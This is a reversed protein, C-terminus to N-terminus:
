KSSKICIIKGKRFLLILLFTNLVTPQKEFIEIKCVWLWFSKPVALYNQTLPREIFTKHIVFFLLTGCCYIETNKELIYLFKIFSLKVWLHVYLPCMKWFWPVQKQLIMAIKWNEFFPMPSRVGVGALQKGSRLNKVSKQNCSQLSCTRQCCRKLIAWKKM